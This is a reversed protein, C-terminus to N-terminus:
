QRTHFGKNSVIVQYLFEQDIYCAVTIKIVASGRQNSNFFEHFFRATEILKKFSSPKIVYGQAGLRLSREEDVPNTSTTYILVPIDKLRKDAKLANLPKCEGIKPMNVDVVILDPLEENTNDQLKKLVQEGNDAFEIVERAGLSQFADKLLLIDDPDDEALLIRCKKMQIM